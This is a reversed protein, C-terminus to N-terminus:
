SEESGFQVEDRHPYPLLWALGCGLWTNWCGWAPVGLVAMPRGPPHIQGWCATHEQQEANIEARVARQSGAVSVRTDGSSAWGAEVGGGGGLDVLDQWGGPEARVGKAV